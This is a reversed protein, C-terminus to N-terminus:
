SGRESDETQISLPSSTFCAVFQTLGLKVRSFSWVGSCARLCVKYFHRAGTSNDGDSATHTANAIQESGEEVTQDVSSTVFYDLTKITKDLKSLGNASSPSLLPQELDASRVSRISDERVPVDYGRRSAFLSKKPNAFHPAGEIRAPTLPKHLSPVCPTRYLKGLGHQGFTQMEELVLVCFVVRLQLNHGDQLFCTQEEDKDLLNSTEVGCCQVAFSTLGPFL